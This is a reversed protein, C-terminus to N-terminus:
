GNSLDALDGLVKSIDSITRPEPFKGCHTWCCSPDVPTSTLSPKPAMIIWKDIMHDGRTKTCKAGFIIKYLFSGTKSILNVHPGWSRKLFHYDNTQINQDQHKVRIRIRRSPNSPGIHCIVMQPLELPSTNKKKKRCRLGPAITMRFNISNAEGFSGPGGCGSLISCLQNFFFCTWFFDENLKWPFKQGKPKQQPNEQVGGKLTASALAGKDHKKKGGLLLNAKKWCKIGCMCTPNSDNIQMMKALCNM